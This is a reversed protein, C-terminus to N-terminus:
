LTNINFNVFYDSGNQSININEVITPAYTFTGVGFNTGRRTTVAIMYNVEGNSFNSTSTPPMKLTSNGYRGTVSDVGGITLVYDGSGTSMTSQGSSINYPITTYSENAALRADGPLSGLGGLLNASSIDFNAGTDPFLLLVGEGEIKTQTGDQGLIVLVSIFGEDELGNADLGLSM